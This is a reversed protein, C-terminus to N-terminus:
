AATSVRAEALRRARLLADVEDTSDTAKSLNSEVTALSAKAEAPDIEEPFEADDALITVDEGLVEAYGGHVVVSKTEGGVVYSLVGLDLLGLFTVHQPLVGFQGATGPALMEDVETDVLIRTPTVIKLKM